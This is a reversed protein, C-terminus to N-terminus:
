PGPKLQRVIELIQSPQSDQESSIYGTPQQSFICKTAELLVANKTQADAGPAEVFAQFTRLANRRHQNVVYNHRHARYIRSCAIAATFLTSLIVVKTIALQVSQIPTLANPNTLSQGFEYWLWYAAGAVGAFLLGTVALWGWAARKHSLSEGNFYSSFSSIANIEAARKAREISTRLEAEGDAKAKRLEVLAEQGQIKVSDLCEQTETAAQKFKELGGAQAQFLAIYPVLIDFQEEYLEQSRAPLGGIERAQSIEGFFQQCNRAAGVLRNLRSTPVAGIGVQDLIKYLQQLSDAYFLGMGSRLDSRLIEEAPIRAIEAVTRSLQEVAAKDPQELQAMQRTTYRKVGDFSAPARDLPIPLGGIRRRSTDQRQAARHL